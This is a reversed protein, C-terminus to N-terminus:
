SKIIEPMRSQAAGPAAIQKRLDELIVTKNIGLTHLNRNFEEQGDHISSVMIEGGGRDCAVSVPQGHMGEVLVLAADIIIPPEGIRQIIKLQM